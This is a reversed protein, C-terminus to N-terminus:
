EFPNPVAKALKDKEYRSFLTSMTDSGVSDSWGSVTIILVRPLATEKKDNM